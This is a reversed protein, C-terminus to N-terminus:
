MQTQKNSQKVIDFLLQLQLLTTDLRIIGCICIFSKSQQKSFPRMLERYALVLDVKFLIAAALVLLTLSAALCLSVSTHLVSHDAPSLSLSASM